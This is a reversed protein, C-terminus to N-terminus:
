TLDARKRKSRLSGKAQDPSAEIPTPEAGFLSEATVQERIYSAIRDQTKRSTREGKITMTVMSQSMGTADAIEQHTISLATLLINIKSVHM